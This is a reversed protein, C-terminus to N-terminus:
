NHQILKLLRSPYDTVLGDVGLAMLRKMEDEGNITWVYVRLGRRRANELFGASVVRIGRYHEPVVLAQAPSQLFHSVGLKQAVFFRVVEAKSMTTAVAPCLTRFRRLPETFFSGVM